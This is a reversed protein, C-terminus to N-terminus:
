LDEDGQIIKDPRKSRSYQIGEGPAGKGTLEMGSNKAHSVVHGRLNPDELVVEKGPETIFKSRGRIKKRLRNAADEATRRMVDEYNYSGDAM